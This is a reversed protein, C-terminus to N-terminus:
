RHGLMEAFKKIMSVDYQHGHKQILMQLAQFPEMPKKHPQEATLSDYSDIIAAAREYKTLYQKQFPYGSGDLREHHCLVVGEILPDEIKLSNRIIDLGYKPHKKMELHEDATYTGQNRGMSEPLRSKGIDHLLGALSIRKALDESVEGIHALFMGLYISVHLSHDYTYLDYTSFRIVEKLCVDQKFVFDLVNNTLSTVKTGDASHMGKFIQDIMSYSVMYMMDVKFDNGRANSAIISPLEREIYTRYKLRDDNRIYLFKSHKLYTSPLKEKKVAANRSCFLFYRNAERTFLDFEIVTDNQISDVPVAIFDAEATNKKNEEM